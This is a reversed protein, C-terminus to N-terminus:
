GLRARLEDVRELWEDLSDAEKWLDRLESENRVRTVARRALDLLESWKESPFHAVVTAVEEPADGSPRGLGAAVVEAAALAESCEPAELCGTAGAAADLATSIAARDRSEAVGAIWDMADDNEFSGAGWAGM